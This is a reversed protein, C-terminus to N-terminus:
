FIVITGKGFVSQSANSKVTHGAKGGQEIVMDRVESRGEVAAM